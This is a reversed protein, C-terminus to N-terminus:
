GWALQTGLQCPTGKEPPPFHGAVSCDPTSVAPREQPRQGVPKTLPSQPLSREM